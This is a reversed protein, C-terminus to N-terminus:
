QSSEEPLGTGCPGPAKINSPLETASDTCARALQKSTLGRAGSLNAGAFQTNTLRADTLDAGRLDARTFDANTLKAYSLRANTLVAESLRAGTLDLRELNVAELYAKHLNIGRTQARGPHPHYFSVGELDAGELNAGGLKAGGLKARTLTAGKMSAGTLTAGTLKIDSLDADDMDAGELDAWSLNAGSLNSKSLNAKKLRAETLIFDSLNSSHLDARELRAKTWKRAQLNENHDAPLGLRKLMGEDWYALERSGVKRLMSVTLGTAGRLDAYQLNARLLDANSFDANRLVTYALNANRLDTNQFLAGTLDSNRFDAAQLDAGRANLYRLRLNSLKPAPVAGSSQESSESISPDGEKQFEPFSRYRFVSELITPLVRSAVSAQQQNVPAGYILGSSVLICLAVFFLALGSKRYSSARNLNVPWTWTDQQEGTLIRQALRWATYAIFLTVSVVVIHVSTGLWDQRTLYRIWFATITLPVVGWLLFLTIWHEIRAYLPQSGALRPFYHRMLGNILWPHVHQHVPRGDPFYAPLRALVDLLRQTALVFYIYILLLLVPATIFFGAIPVKANLIPLPSTGTNLILAPDRTTAITLWTYACAALLIMFMNRAYRSADGVYDLASFRAIDEPLRAGTVDTGAFQEALVQRVDGLNADHLNADRLVTNKVTANALSIGTLDAARLNADSFDLKGVKAPNFRLRKLVTAQNFAANEQFETEYFSVASSFTVRKFYAQKMFVTQDFNADCEFQANGFMANERFVSTSFDVINDSSRWPAMKGLIGFEPQEFRAEVFSAAGRFACEFFIASQRATIGQFNAFSAFHARSFDVLNEFKVDMCNLEKAFKCNALRLQGHIHANSLNVEGEFLAESFDVDGKFHIGSMDVNGKFVTGSFDVNSEFWVGSMDVEGCFQANRFSAGALVLNPFAIDTPIVVSDLAAIFSEHAMLEPMPAGNQESNRRNQAVENLINVVDLSLNENQRDDWDAKPSRMGEVEMPLTFRCWPRDHFYVLTNDGERLSCEPTVSEDEPTCNRRCVPCCETMKSDLKADVYM